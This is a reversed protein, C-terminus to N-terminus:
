WSTSTRAMCRCDTVHTSVMLYKDQGYVQLRNRTYEGHPVQGPRVSATQQMHVQVHTGQQSHGRVQPQTGTSRAPIVDSLLSLRVFQTWMMVGTSVRRHVASM